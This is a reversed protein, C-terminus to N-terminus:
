EISMLKANAEVAQGEEAFVRVVKGPAAAKLENEMKMAEIIVLPQGEEVTDGPRVLLKVLKGPMPSKLTQPGEVKLKRSGASMRVKREDQVTLSVLRGRVLTNYAGDSEQGGAVELEIDYSQGDLLLNWQGGGLRAADAVHSRGNISVSYQGNPLKEVDIPTDKGRYTGIFRQAGM